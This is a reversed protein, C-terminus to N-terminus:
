RIMAQLEDLVTSDMMGTAHPGWPVQGLAWADIALAATWEQHDLLHWGPLVVPSLRRIAEAASRDAEVGTLIMLRLLAASRRDDSLVELMSVVGARSPHLHLPALDDFGDGIVEELVEGLLEDISGFMSHMWRPDRDAVQAVRTLTLAEVGGHQVLTLAADVLPRDDRVVVQDWQESPTSWRPRPHPVGAYDAIAGLARNWWALDDPYVGAHWGLLCGDLALFAVSAQPDRAPTPAVATVTRALRRALGARIQENRSAM